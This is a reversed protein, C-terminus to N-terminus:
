QWGWEKAVKPYNLALADPLWVDAKNLMLDQEHWARRLVLQLRRVELLSEPLMPIRAKGGKGDRVIIEKRSLEVDKVRLRLAEM